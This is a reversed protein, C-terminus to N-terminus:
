SATETLRRLRAFRRPRASRQAEDFASRTDDPLLRRLTRGLQQSIAAEPAVALVPQGANLSRQVERAYPLTADFGRPFLEAIQRLEIGSNAEAKNLLLHIGDDPVKLRGLTTLFVQLNRISPVDLTALVLLEDSRHYAVVVNDGLSPPTDVIVDDFHLRAADILRGVDSPGILGAQTPDSPAALVHVGSSHEVCYEPLHDALTAVDSGNALLDTITYRPQLRLASSVEGFQLDLDLICVRRGGHHHLQWALNTALFTKGCGGSASAISIVRPRMRRAAAPDVVTGAATRGRRALDDARALLDAVTERDQGPEVLDIAGSRAVARIPVQDPDAALVIALAPLEERIIRLREFGTADALGPGAVLVGFRHDGLLEALRSPTECRTVQTGTPTALRVREDVAGDTDFVLIPLRQDGDTADEVPVLARAPEPEAVPPVLRIAPTTM